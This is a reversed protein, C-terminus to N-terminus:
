QPGAGTMAKETGAHALAEQDEETSEGRLLSRLRTVLLRHHFDSHDIHMRWWVELCRRGGFNRETTGADLLPRRHHMQLTPFIGFATEITSHKGQIYSNWPCANRRSM